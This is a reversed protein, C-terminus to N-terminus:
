LPIVASTMGIDTPQALDSGPLPLIKLNRIWPNSPNVQLQMYGGTQAIINGVATQVNEWSLDIDLIQDLSPDVSSSMVIYDQWPEVCIDALIDSAMRQYMKYQSLYYRTLYCEPGTCTVLITDGSGGGLGGSGSGTSAAGYDRTAETVLPVFVQKLEQDVGYLWVELGVISGWPPFLKAMPDSIQLNFTLQDAMGLERTISPAIRESLTGLNDFSHNPINRRRLELIYYPVPIM